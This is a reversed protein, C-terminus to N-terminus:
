TGRGREDDKEEKERLEPLPGFVEELEEWAIDYVNEDLVADEPPLLGAPGIQKKVVMLERVKASAERFQGLTPAILAEGEAEDLVGAKVLEGATATIRSLMLSAERMEDAAQEPTLPVTVETPLMEPEEREPIEPLGLRERTWKQDETTASLFGAGTLLTVAKAWEGIDERSIPAHDLYPYSTMGVFANKNLEFLRPVAIDNIVDKFVGLWGNLAMLFFDTQDKSLAWSGVRAAGLLAWQAMASRFFAAEHRRIIRDIDRTGAGPSMLEVDFGFPVVLGMQEDARFNVVIKQAKSFDSDPDTEDTNAGEPLIIVLVGGMREVIIAEIVELERIFYYSRYGADFVGGAGEPSGTRDDLRFLLAKQKHVKKLERDTVLTSLQTFGDWNGDEGIQWQDLTIAPRLGWKRWGWLGDDFESRFQPDAQAPGRRQKYVLEFLVFGQELTNATIQNLLNPWPINLDHICSELFEAAKHDAETDGAPQARWKVKRYVMEIVRRVAAGQPSAAIEQRLLRGRRGKLEERFEDPRISWLSIGTTGLEQQLEARSLKRRRAM